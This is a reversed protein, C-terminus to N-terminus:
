VNVNASIRKTQSSIIELNYLKVFDDIAFQPQPHVKHANVKNHLEYIRTIPDGTVLIPYTLSIIPDLKDYNEQCMGCLLILSFNILISSFAIQFENDDQAMISCLHLFEWYVHGWWDKFDSVQPLDFHDIAFKYFRDCGKDPNLKLEKFYEVLTSEPIEREHKFLVSLMAFLDRKYDSLVTNYKETPVLHVVYWLLKATAVRLRQVTAREDLIKYRCVRFEGSLTKTDPQTFVPVKASAMSNKTSAQM